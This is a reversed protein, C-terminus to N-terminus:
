FGISFIAPNLLALPNRNKIATVVGGSIQVHRLQIVAPAPFVADRAWHYFGGSIEPSPSTWSQSIWFAYKEISPYLPLLNEVTAVTLPTPPPEAKPPSILREGRLVLAPASFSNFSASPVGNTQGRLELARWFLLM